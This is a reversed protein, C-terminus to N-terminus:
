KGYYGSLQALLSRKQRVDRMRRFVRLYRKWFVSGAGTGHSGTADKMEQWISYLIKTPYYYSKFSTNTTITIHGSVEDGVYVGHILWSSSLSVSEVLPETGDEINRQSPPKYGTLNRIKGKLAESAKKTAENLLNLDASGLKTLAQALSTPDRIIQQILKSLHKPNKLFRIAHNQIERKVGVNAKSLIRALTSIYKINVFKLTQYIFDFFNFMVLNYSLFHWSPM